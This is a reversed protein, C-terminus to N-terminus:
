KVISNSYTIDSCILCILFKNRMSIKLLNENAKTLTGVNIPLSVASASIFNFFYLSYVVHSQSNM